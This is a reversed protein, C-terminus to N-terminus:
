DGDRFGKLKAALADRLQQAQDSGSSYGFGPDVGKPIMMAEGTRPNTYHQFETKPSTAGSEYGMAEAQAQSLQIVSCRCNWGNPPTHFQWWVDDAPLIMGDWEAHEPRTRDDDVADYLLFPADAKTEQIQAWQGAAYATKLNTRYITRLRRPSGLEGQVVEGTAPDTVEQRGWWGAQQLIPELAKRFTEFTTGEALAKDVANRVDTLLDIDAMKAVTFANNHEENFVDQWSFSVAFGKKRFFELAKKPALKFAGEFAM